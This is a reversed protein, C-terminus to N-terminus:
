FSAALDDWRRRRTLWVVRALALGLLDSNELSLRPLGDLPREHVTTPLLVLQNAERRVARVLAGTPTNVVYYSLPQLCTFDEFLLLSTM